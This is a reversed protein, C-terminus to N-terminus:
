ARTKKALHLFQVHSETRTWKSSDLPTIIWAFNVKGRHRQGLVSEMIIKQVQKTKGALLVTNKGLWSDMKERWVEDSEREWGGVGRGRRREMHEGSWKEGLDNCRPLSEVGM